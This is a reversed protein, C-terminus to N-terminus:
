DDNLSVCREQSFYIPVGNPWRLTSVDFKDIDYSMTIHPLYDPFDYSAGMEKMLSTHRAQLDPSKVKMVLCRKGNRQDFFDFKEFEAKYIKRSEVQPMKCPETSYILTCHMKDTSYPNPIEHRGQLKSLLRRAGEDPEVSVYLPQKFGEAILQSFTKMKM